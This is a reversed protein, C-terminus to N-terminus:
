ASADRARGPPDPSGSPTRDARRAGAPAGRRTRRGPLTPCDRRPASARLCRRWRRRVDDLEEGPEVSCSRRPGAHARRPRTRRCAAALEGGREVAVVQEVDQGVRMQPVVGVLADAFHAPRDGADRLLQTSFMLCTLARRPRCKWTESSARIPRRLSSCSQSRSNSLASPAPSPEEAEVAAAGVSAAPARAAGGRSSDVSAAARPGDERIAWGWGVM